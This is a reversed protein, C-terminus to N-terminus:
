APLLSASSWALALSKGVKRFYPGPPFLMQIMLIPVAMKFPNFLMINILFQCLLANTAKIARRLFEHFHAYFTFSFMNENVNKHVNEHMQLKTIKTHIKMFNEGFHLVLLNPIIYVMKPLKLVNKFKSPASIRGSILGLFIGSFM